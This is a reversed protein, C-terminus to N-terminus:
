SFHYSYFIKMTDLVRTIVYIVIKFLIEQDPDKEGSFNEDTSRVLLQRYATSTTGATQALKRASVVGQQSLEYAM